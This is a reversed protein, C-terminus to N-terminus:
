SLRTFNEFAPTWPNFIETFNGGNISCELIREMIIDDPYRSAVEALFINMCATNTKPLVLSVMAGDMPSIAGYEYMYERVRLCPVVPRVGNGCWCARPKNIRGFGAEDQYMLRFKKGEQSSTFNVMKNIAETMKEIPM